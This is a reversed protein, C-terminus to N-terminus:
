FRTFRLELKLPRLSHGPGGIVAHMGKEAKAFVTILLKNSVEGAIMKQLHGSINMRYTDNELLDGGFLLSFSQNGSTVRDSILFDDIDEITGDDKLERVVLQDPPAIFPSGSADVIQAVLEAKNIILDQLSEVHPIEVVANVGSMGQLFLLSDGLSPDNLFAAVESNSYDHEFRVAKVSNDDIPFTYQYFNTDQHYYVTLGGFVNQLNFGVMGPNPVEARLVLGHFFALFASDSEFNMSDTQFFSQAFADDLRIRLQPVIKIPDGPKVDPPIFSVSDLPRPILDTQGILIGKDPFAENSYYTKQNDLAEALEFVQFSYVQNTDGFVGDPNWPLILVISDLEGLEFPPSPDQGQLLRFQAVLSAFCTGFVPDEIKGVMYNSLQESFTPSYTLISDEQVTYAKLTVTDTYGLDFQDEDLLESGIITPDNCAPFAFHLLILGALGLTTFKM